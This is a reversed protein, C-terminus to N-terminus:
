SPRAPWGLESLILAATQEATLADSDVRLGFGSAELTAAEAIAGAAVTLLRETSQGRLPDGPQPWSGGQRRSMIRKTLQEPGAHLRCWRFTAHPLAAEYIAADARDQLPGVVVLGDAGLSRYTKWVAALNRARLAHDLGATSRFGIQDVDVYAVRFGRQVVALYARFGATSKGVGRPGYLWLIPGGPSEVCDVATPQIPTIRGDPWEGIRELIADVVQRPASGSTDVLEDAAQSQDMQDALRLADDLRVSSGRRRQLREALEAHSARLRCVVLAARPLGGGPLGTLPNEVGSVVMGRAGADMFNLGLAGLNRAKIGVREPDSPPTPSLIGVQDIDLYACDVRRETLVSYVEWAATSKGVGPPGCLWLIPIM